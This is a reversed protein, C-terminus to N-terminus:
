VKKCWIGTCEPLFVSRTQEALEAGFFFRILKQAEEISRFKYDTRIWTSSFGKDALFQYYDTLHDPFHPTEYGTGLTELLIIMRGPRLVRKMEDLAKEVQEVWDDRNWDVLYCVSWGSIAIDASQDQAPLHRHDGTEVHWNTIRSSELKQIAIELMNQSTDYALISKVVPALMCTLRGTGAGLEIIDKGVLQTLRKLAPLINHQYDERSILSEYRETEHQYVIKHDPM